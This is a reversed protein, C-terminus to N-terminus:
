LDDFLEITKNELVSNLETRGNLEIGDNIAQAVASFLLGRTLQIRNAPGSNPTGTFNAVMGGRLINLKKKNRTCIEITSLPNIYPKTLYPSSERLLRNFEIDGSSLSMLTKDSNSFELWKVDSIDEGTIGVILSCKDYLEQISRCITVSDTLGSIKYKDYLYLNYNLSFDKVIAKGIHGYGIVGIKKNKFDQFVESLHNKVSEVVIPPELVTKAYCTAVMIVPFKGICDLMRVGSTTQEIGIVRHKRWLKDPINKLTYGGDDLVIIRSDPKIQELLKGWMLRIDNELCEVYFGPSSPYSSDFLNIATEKLKEFTDINTSYIKGNLFINKAPIGLELIAEFLSGTTHLIHQTAILYVKDFQTNMTFYDSKIIKKLGELIPLKQFTLM